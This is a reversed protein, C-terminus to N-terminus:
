FLSDLSFDAWSGGRAKHERLFSAIQRGYNTLAYMPNIGTGVNELLGALECDELCDWDDHGPKVADGRLRTPYRVADGGEHAFAPHRSHNCRMHLKNPVGKHDVIRTEIYGFTSWHDQGFDEIAVM